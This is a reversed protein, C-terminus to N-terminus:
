AVVGVIEFPHVGGDVANHAVEITRQPERADGLERREM